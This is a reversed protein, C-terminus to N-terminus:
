KLYQIKWNQIEMQNMKIIKEERSLHRIQENMLLYNKEVDKFINMIAAESDKDAWELMQIVEPETETSKRREQTQTMNEQKKM